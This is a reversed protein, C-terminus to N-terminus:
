GKAQTLLRMRGSLEFVSFDSSFLSGWVQWRWGQKRTFIWLLFNSRLALKVTQFICPLYFVRVFDLVVTLFFYSDLARKKPRDCKEIWCCLWFFYVRVGVCTKEFRVRGDAAGDWCVFSCISFHFLYQMEASVWVSMSAPNGALAVQTWFNSSECTRCNVSRIATQQTRWRHQLWSM